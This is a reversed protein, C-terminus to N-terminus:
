ANYDISQIYDNYRLLYIPCTNSNAPHNILKKGARLCNACKHAEKNNKHICDNTEHDTSSCNGCQNNSRCYKVIHGFRQCKYCRTLKIYDNVPYALWNIYIKRTSILLKRVLPHSEIIWNVTDKNRDGIKFTQKFWDEVPLENKINDSVHDIFENETLNNPINYFILKPWQKEPLKAFLGAEILKENHIITELQPDSCEILVGKNKVKIDPKINLSKPNLQFLTRKTEESTNININDKPYIIAKYKNTNLNNPKGIINSKSIPISTIQAFPPSPKENLASFQEKITNSIIDKLDCNDESNPKLVLQTLKLLNRQIALLGTLCKTKQKIPRQLM